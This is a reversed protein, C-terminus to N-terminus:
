NEAKLNFLFQIKKDLQKIMEEAMKSKDTIETITGDKVDLGQTRAIGELNRVTAKEDTYPEKSNANLAKNYAEKLNINKGLIGELMMIVSTFYCATSNIERQKLLKIDKIEQRENNKIKEQVLNIKKVSLKNLKTKETEVELSSSGPTKETKRLEVGKSEKDESM